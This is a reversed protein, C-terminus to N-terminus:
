IKQQEGQQTIDLGIVTTILPKPINDSVQSEETEQINLPLTQGCYLNPNSQKSKSTGMAGALVRELSQNEVSLCLFIFCKGDTITM